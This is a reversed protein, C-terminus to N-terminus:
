LNTRATCRLLSYPNHRLMTAIHKGLIVISISTHHLAYAQRDTDTPKIKRRKMDTTQIQRNYSAVCLPANHAHTLMIGRQGHPVVHKPATLPEPVYTLVGVRLHLMHKVSHLTRLKYSTNLDTSSIPHELPDSLHAAMTQLSSDANQITFLDDATVQPSITIRSPAPTHAGTAHQRRTVAAVSPNPPLAHFTWSEEHLAGAKTLADTQDNSPSSNPLFRKPQIQNRKRKGSVRMLGQKTGHSTGTNDLHANVDVRDMGATMGRNLDPALTHTENETPRPHM